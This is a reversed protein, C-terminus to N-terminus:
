LSASAQDELVHAVALLAQSQFIPGQGEASSSAITQCLNLAAQIDGMQAQAVALRELGNVMMSKDPLQNILTMAEESHGAKLEVVAIDLLAEESWHATSISKRAIQLATKLDGQQAHRVAITERVEDALYTDQIHSVTELAEVLKGSRVQAKALLGKAEVTSSDLLAVTALAGDIDGSEVQRTVILQNAFNKTGSNELLSATKLAETFKAQATLSEIIGLVAEDKSERDEILRVTEMAGQLDALEAQTVAITLFIDEKGGTQAIALAEPLHGSEVLAMAMISWAAAKRDETEILTITHQAAKLMGQKVQAAVVGVYAEDRGIGMDFSAVTQLAMDVDGSEALAMVYRALASTKWPGPSIMHISQLADEWYGFQSQAEAIRFLTNEREDRTSISGAITAALALISEAHEPDNHPSLTISSECGVILSCLIFLPVVLLWGVPYHRSLKRKKKPSFTDFFLSFPKM